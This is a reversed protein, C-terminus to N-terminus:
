PLVLAKQPTSPDNFNVTDFSSQLRWQPNADPITWVGVGLFYTQISASTSFDETPASQVRHILAALQTNPGRQALLGFLGPSPSTQLQPLGINVFTLGNKQSVTMQVPAPVQNSTTSPQKLPDDVKGQNLQPLMAILRDELNGLHTFPQKLIERLNTNEDIRSPLHVLYAHMRSPNQAM